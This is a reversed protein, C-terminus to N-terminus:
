HCSSWLLYILKMLFVWLLGMLIKLGKQLRLTCQDQFFLIHTSFNLRCWLYLSWDSTQWTWVTCIFHEVMHNVACIMRSIDKKLVWLWVRWLQCKTNILTCTHKLLICANFIWLPVAPSFSLLVHCQMDNTWTISWFQDSHTHLSELLMM